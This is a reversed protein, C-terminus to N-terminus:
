RPEIQVSIGMDITGPTTGGFGDPAWTEMHMDLNLSVDHFIHGLDVTCAGGGRVTMEEVNEDGGMGVAESATMGALITSALLLKKM